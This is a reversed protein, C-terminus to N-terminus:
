GPQLAVELDRRREQFELVAKALDQKSFDPWLTDLFVLESHASQWLLFNSIRQEGSTRIVLDPEPIGSTTLRAAFQEEDIDQPDLRGAAVAEALSQAAAVIEQRGGYSLAVVLTLNRNGSTLAEADGILQAIEEGLRGREGIIHLRVGNKHLQGVESRLYQRLLGMLSDIESPLRQWNELSFAYVTLYSIGLESAASVARRLAEVGRRHGASRPLHRARAWRGNGDMIIAVHAPTPTSVWNPVADM